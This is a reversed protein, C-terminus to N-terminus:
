RHRTGERKYSLPPVFLSGSGRCTPGLVYRISYGSCSIDTVKHLRGTGRYGGSLYCQRAAPPEGADYIDHHGDRARLPIPTSGVTQNSLCVVQLTTQDDGAM